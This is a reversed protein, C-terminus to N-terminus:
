ISDSVLVVWILINKFLGYQNTLLFIYLMKWLYFGFIKEM